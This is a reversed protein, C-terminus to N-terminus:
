SRYEWMNSGFIGLILISDKEIKYPIVYGNFVLERISSDRVKLSRRHAYPMAPIDKIKSKLTDVFDQAHVFSDAAIFVFIEKLEAEFRVSYKIQM